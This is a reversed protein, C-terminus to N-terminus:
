YKYFEGDSWIYDIDEVDMEDISDMSELPFYKKDHDCYPSDECSHTNIKEM